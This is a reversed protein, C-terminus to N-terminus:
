KIVWLAKKNKKFFERVPLSLSESFKLTVSEHFFIDSSYNISTNLIEKYINSEPIWVRSAWSANYIWHPLWWVVAEYLWLLNDWKIKRIHSFFNFLLKYFIYFSSYKQNAWASSCLLIEKPLLYGLKKEIIEKMKEEWIENYYKKFERDYISKFNDIYWDEFAIIKWQNTKSVTLFSEISNNYRNQIDEIYEEENYIFETDSRCRPCEIRDINLINEIQTVTELYIDNSLYWFIDQKSHITDCNKCQVYEWIGHSWMDKELEAIQKLDTDSINKPNVSEIYAWKKNKM